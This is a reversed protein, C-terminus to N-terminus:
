FISGFSGIVKGYITLESKTITYNSYITNDSIINFNGNSLKQIRKILLGDQTHLAYIGDKTCDQKNTDIFIIDNDNLTPEM